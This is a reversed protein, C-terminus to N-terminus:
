VVAPKARYIYYAAGTEDPIATFTMGYVMLNGKQHAIDDFSEISAKPIVTRRLYGTNELEDIVLPVTATGVPKASVKKFSGDENEEVNSKGYRLKAATTRSVELFEVKFTSDESSVQTAVVTGHWGKAKQIDMSHTETFGNESLEGLSEFGTQNSMKQTADTPLAFTDAFSTWCAGGEVPSGFTAFKNDLEKIESM